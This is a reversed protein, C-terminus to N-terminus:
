NRQMVADAMRVARATERVDHVRVLNAGNLVGLVATALSGEMREAVPLDLIAGIMSKRSTGLLLPRGLVKFESLHKLLDLNDQLRKGFGIGPDLIMQEDRMGAARGIEMSGELYALVEGVVDEYSPDQQMDKPTGLIHMLVVPVDREAVLSAMEPDFRLGSIDNIMHAGADLAARAVSAKCTDVSIRLGAERVLREVVPLVRKLEEEEPVRASGPRTSEGGVDIFDAGEEAMRIAQIVAADVSDYAGGDFFSDPTVNLVGMIYTREGLDILESGFRCPFRNQNFSRICLALDDALAPLGFFNQRKLKRVLGRYHRETAVMLVDTTEVSHTLTGHAVACDGGRSLLEQKLLNAVPCPVDSLRIMRTLGKPFMLGIGPPDAGLRRMEHIIEERTNLQLIRMGYKM